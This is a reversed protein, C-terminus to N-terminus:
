GKGVIGGRRRVHRGIQDGLGLVVGARTDEDGPVRRQESSTTASHPGATVPGGAPGGLCARAQLMEADQDQGAISGFRNQPGVADTGLVQWIAVRWGSTKSSWTSLAPAM